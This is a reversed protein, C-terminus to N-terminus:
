VTRAVRVEWGSGVPATFRLVGQKDTTTQKRQLAGGENEAVISYEAERVLDHIAFRKDGSGPLKLELERQSYAVDVNGVHYRFDSRGFPDIVVDNLGLNIGYVAERLLMVLMEPYGHYFPTRVAQGQRNYRETLWTNELLDIRIPDVILDNFTTLDGTRARALGDAWGIRGLTVASDGTNGGYTDGPGYYKESVYTPKAHTYPGSDVRDYIKAAREPPAVGFAIALLNADYDVLDRTTGDPNMQTVYHDKSWLHENMGEVIDDALSRREAALDEDDLFEEANAVQRLIEVMYANTDATYGERIFVDIWLPGPANVLKVEPDYRDTLFELAREIRPMNTRLWEYDGSAKAYQLAAAVWFINPGTQTAGSIAVYTPKTGEYHHPIQGSPLMDSGSTEILKRAENQLYPDGSYVLSSVSMWADPDFFNLGPFYGRDPHAVTVATEGPYEYSVLSGVSTGYIATYLARLDEFPLNPGSPVTSVPFDFNNAAITASTEWRQGVDVHTASASEWGADDWRDRQPYSGSLVQQLGSRYFSSGDASLLVSESQGRAKIDVSGGGGLTYFRNLADESAFYPASSNMMQVVGRDFLGNVSTPALYSAIHVGAVDASGLPRTSTELEFSRERAALSLIWTSTVLPEEPDDVIGEIRVKIKAPTDKLVTVALDRGAGMSSAHLGTNEGRDNVALDPTLFTEAPTEFTMGLVNMATQYSNAYPDTSTDPVSSPFTVSALPSDSSIPVVAHYVNFPVPGNNGYSAHRYATRFAVHHDDTDTGPGGWDRLTVTRTESSGDAFTLRFDGTAVGDTGAGFIHLTSFNARDDETLAFTQGRAQAVNPSTGSTDPIRAPVDDREDDKPTVVGPSPLLEAAYSYNGDFQGNARHEPDTIGITNVVRPQPKVPDTRELVIGSRDFEDAGQATLDADYRGRGDFDAKIVDIQPHTLDFEVRVYGNDLVLRESGHKFSVKEAPRAQAIGGFPTQALAAGVGVAAAGGLFKRRTIRHVAWSSESM